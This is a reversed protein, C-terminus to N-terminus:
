ELLDKRKVDPSPPSKEGTAVHDDSALAKERSVLGPLKGSMARTNRWARPPDLEFPERTDAFPVRKVRVLQRAFRHENRHESLRVPERRNRPDLHGSPM